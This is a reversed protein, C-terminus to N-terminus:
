SAIHSRNIAAALEDVRIPKSIADNMGSALCRERYGDMADATLAIIYPQRDPALEARIRVTTDLGNLEPMHIDMLILDYAHRSLADLVAIGTDALDAQYGLRDLIRLAVKQNILNDEALLVRLPVAKAALGDFWATSHRSPSTLPARQGMALRLAEHLRTMKAPKALVCAINLSEAEARTEADGISSLLLIPLERGVATARIEATLRLGDMVPMLVDLVAADFIQGATVRQLAEVSSAVATVECEWRTFQHVLIKLNTLNDDVLLIRKGVLTELSAPTAVPASEPEVRVDFSFLSGVGPESQVQMTGGMMEVLRRSIALGLGTGGYRRTTSSDVQSFSKFLRDVRDPAIGIGTDRVTFLLRIGGEVAGATVSVNVEGHDTFKVANGVLNVLIQRLRTEDGLVYAPTGDGISCTLEIAKEAARPAFLDIASEVCEVLDFAHPSLEMKGSEIKSFDLIDNIIALLNEGSIRIAEVYEFQDATLPTDLLLTTMGIVANMPTRIEHSMNALFLSKAQTAAEAVEKAQRLQEEV